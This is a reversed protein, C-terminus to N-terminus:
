VFITISLFFFFFFFLSRAFSLRPPLPYLFHSISLLILRCLPLLLLLLLFLFSTHSLCFSYQPLLHTSSFILSLSPSAPPFSFSILHQRFLILIICLSLSLFSILTDEKLEGKGDFPNADGHFLREFSIDIDGKREAELFALPTVQSWQKLGRLIARRFFLFM